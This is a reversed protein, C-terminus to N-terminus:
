GVLEVLHSSVYGETGTPSLVHLWFLGVVDPDPVFYELFVLRDNDWLVEIVAYEAIGPGNRLFTGLAGQATLELVMEGLNPWNAPNLWHDQDIGRIGGENAAATEENNYVYTHQPPIEYGPAIPVDPRAFAPMTPFRAAPAVYERHLGFSALWLAAVVGVIFMLRQTFKKSRRVMGPFKAFKLKTRNRKVKDCLRLYTGAFRKKGKSYFRIYLWEHLTEVYIYNWARFIIHFYFMLLLPAIIYRFIQAAIYIVLWALLVLIITRM